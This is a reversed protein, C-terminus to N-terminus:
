SSKFQAFMDQLIPVVEYNKNVEAISKRSVWKRHGDNIDFDSIANWVCVKGEKSGSGTIVHGEPTKCMSKVMDEHVHFEREARAGDTTMVIIRGDKDGLWVSGFATIM